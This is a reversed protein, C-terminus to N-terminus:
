STSGPIWTFEFELGNVDVAYFSQVGRSDTAIESPFEEVVFTFRGTRHVALWRARWDQLAQPSPVALCLHQFRAEAHDGGTVEGSCEFLHFRISGFAMVVLRVIGPLRSRTLGSFSDLTWNRRAGFFERYWSVCNVLDATQVGVHHITVPGDPAPGCRAITAVENDSM